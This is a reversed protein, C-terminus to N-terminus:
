CHHCCSSRSAQLGNVTCSGEKTELRKKIPNTLFVVLSRDAHMVTVPVEQNYHMTVNKVLLALIRINHKRQPINLVHSTVITTEAGMKLYNTTTMSLRTTVTYGTNILARTRNWDDASIQFYFCILANNYKCSTVLHRSCLLSGFNRTYWIYM